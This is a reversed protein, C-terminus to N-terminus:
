DGHTHTEFMKQAGGVCGLYLGIQLSGWPQGFQGLCIITHIQKKRAFVFERGFSVNRDPTGFVPQKTQFYQHAM